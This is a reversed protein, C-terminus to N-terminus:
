RGFTENSGPFEPIDNAHLRAPCYYNRVCIAVLYLYAFKWFLGPFRLMGIFDNLAAPDGKRVRKLFLSVSALFRNEMGPILNDALLRRTLQRYSDVSKKKDDGANQPRRRVFALIEPNRRFRCGRVALTLLFYVDEGLSMDPPFTTGNLADKRIMISNIPFSSMLISAAPNVYPDIMGLISRPLFPRLYASDAGGCEFLLIGLRLPNWPSKQGFFRGQCFVAEAKSGNQFHGLSSELYRPHLLDDDDLFVLFEGRVAAIGANRAASRGRNESFRHLCIIPHRASIRDIALRYEDASGDDIILIELPLVTQALVSDVAQELYAPRNYTPIIM